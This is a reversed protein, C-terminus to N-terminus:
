EKRLILSEGTMEVPKKIELIDLITPAIDALIGVRKKLKYRFKSDLLILPVRNTTHSTIVEGKQNYMYEINGHDSTVLIAGFYRRFEEVFRGLVEDVVEVARIAAKYEGTHGVMDLNAINVIIVDYGCGRIGGMVKEEVEYISMEPKLDYTKVKPSGILERDENLYASERQGNLFFTVHAYKETEAVRLQRKGAGELVEGLVQNLGKREFIVRNKLAEDYKLMSILSVRRFVSRRFGDFDVSMLAHSLQRFRDARFNILLVGDGDRIYKLDNRGGKIMTPSIFEDSEGREYGAELGLFPDMSEYGVGLTYADYAKRTREWRHDRDMAYYRGAISAIEGVGIEGMRIDLDRIYRRATRPGVDRGDLIAHILISRVGYDGGMELLAYFHDIHSHVGGDSLLGIFHVDKGKFGNFFDCLVRKRFFDGVEISRNIEMLSQYVVRGAGINLHGVESNGMQGEPLGVALGSAELEMWDYEGKYSDLNPTRAEIIANGLSGKREGYGDLIILM